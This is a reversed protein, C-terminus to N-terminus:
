CRRLLASLEEVSFPLMVVDGPLGPTVYSLKAGKRKKDATLFSLVRDSLYPEIETPLGLRDLLQQARQVDPASLRGLLQGVRCAAVMGISVAEGHRIGAYGSSAEIAHALTHGLNLVARVGEEREDQTVIRVKLGAAMRIARLTAAEDNRTLLEVDAELQAVAAEGDIWASKVVEALGARREAAPLTALVQVDSLVCSPQHFAGVLNKGHRTDFGTKGGIASDVMALLTTPVHLVRVGRLLTSAAFGAMDGIVGGGVGIVVSGRDLGADLAAHWIAEVSELTKASEGPALEIQSVVHGVSRLEAAITRGWHPAVQTDTVVLVSSVAGLERLRNPLSQRVNSGIIIRYTRLGLPVVIPAEQASEWIQRAAREPDLHTTDLRVHCEAYAEAREQRLGELRARKDGQELLPRGTGQGVRRLLEDISAELTVLVGSGLLCRRTARSVVAGGGLAVVAAPEAEILRELVGREIERFADQGRTRFFESVSCGIQRTVLEDLDFLPLGARVALARAVTSKGAGMLGSLFIRM